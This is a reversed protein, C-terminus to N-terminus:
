LIDLLYFLKQIFFFPFNKDILEDDPTTGFWIATFYPVYCLSNKLDKEYEELSYNLVGYELLKKYYYYKFLPYIIKIDSVNFSEIIFFILDQSGKGIACHQWDLFYPEYDNSTDYFINPSKIDGHIFTLNDNALNDQINEFDDFIDKCKQISHESLVGKWKETFLEIKNSIFEKFFPRFIPDNSKKLGTFKSLITHNWFGSHLKAMRDVIKLSIDINEISLNMNLKMKRTLLNELVLGTNINNEKILGIFKPIKINVYKSVKEYFYYEREYLQLQKAMDSLSTVNKNEYKLVCDQIEGNVGIQLGVVDAIFGGKYKNEDIIIDSINMEISDYIMQKLNEISSMNYRYLININIDTFDKISINVGYNKLESKNYITEMGILCRPNVSKGSLLGTKSDEFIFCKDNAIGYKNMAMIYPEPNPKGVLCDQASIIFDIYREIGIYKVITEAVIRNCNTVISIKHGAERIEKLFETCGTIMKIKDINKIFGEDKKKSLELVDIDSNPLYTSLVYKDNNGQMNKKFLAPTLVMNYSKLIDYWVEFYIDDTVVLTGDLDFLFAYTNDMYQKLEKPTGLSFVQERNLEYGKFIHNEKIMEKIVCSTYPENTTYTKKDLIHNCYKYLTHINTFAYAGTNANNSIKQKEAINIITSSTDLDIYSYIPPENERHIYFVMNDDSNRFIDIVNETYFTDCDLILSKEKYQYHELIYQIGISLTESAGSTNNELRILKIFPYTKTIFDSFSFKDLYNNYIMFVKDDGGISINDIVYQIMRKEFIKILAKPETYGEKIFREGKGGLPIIINM